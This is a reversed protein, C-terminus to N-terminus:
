RALLALLDLETVVGEPPHGIGTSVLIRRADHTRMAELAKRAPQWPELAVVPETVAESASVSATDRGVLALLGTTTAWGAPRGTREVVLVAHVRHSLLARQAQAVSADEAIVIVGPRMVNRLPESSRDGIPAPRPISTAAM